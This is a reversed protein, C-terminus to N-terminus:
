MTPNVLELLGLFIFSGVPKNPDKLGARNRQIAKVVKQIAENQGIVTGNMSEAMRMLRGSEKEAVKQVPIGTMMAVVEAVNDENVVQRHTKSEQEWKKKASDLEENLKRESDRLRAAEEYQQSRVVKNKLDKVEEIQKEISIISEPVNINTIHVRSGVEDLADIAKDPLHRDSVYRETLM